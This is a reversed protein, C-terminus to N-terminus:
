LDGKSKLYDIVQILAYRKVISGPHPKHLSIIDMNKNIFKRRSGATKGTKLPYYAFNALVATLEDWSFDKPTKLFRERLKEARSM